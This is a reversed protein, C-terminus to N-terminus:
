VGCLSLLALCEESSMLKLSWSFGNMCLRDGSVAVCSGSCWQIWAECANACGDGEFEGHVRVCARECVGTAFEVYSFYIWREGVEGHLAKLRSM